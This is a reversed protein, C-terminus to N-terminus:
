ERQHDFMDLGSLQKMVIKDSRQEIIEKSNVGLGEVHQVVVVGRTQHTNGLGYHLLDMVQGSSTVLSQLNDHRTIDPNIDRPKGTRILYWNMGSCRLSYSRQKKFLDLKDQICQVKQTFLAPSQQRLVEEGFLSTLPLMLLIQGKLLALTQGLDGISVALHVVLVLLSFLLVNVDKMVGNELGLLAELLVHKFMNSCM